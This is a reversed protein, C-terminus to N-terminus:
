EVAFAAMAENPDALNAISAVSNLVDFSWSMESDRKQETGVYVLAIAHERPVIRQQVVKEFMWASDHVIRRLPIRKNALPVRQYLRKLTRNKYAHSFEFSENVNPAVSCAVQFRSHFNTNRTLKLKRIIDDAVQDLAIDHIDDGSSPEVLKRFLDNTLEEIDQPRVEDIVTGGEALCFNGRSTQRLNDFWRQLLRGTRTPRDALEGRWFEVWQKYAGTSTVFPPVSRGDVQGPQDPREALFRASAGAPTWLIIGINRPEMRQLDSVYKAVFYRASGSM